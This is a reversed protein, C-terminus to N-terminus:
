DLEIIPGDFEHLIGEIVIKHTGPKPFSKGHPLITVIFFYKTKVSPNDRRYSAIIARKKSKSWFMVEFSKGVEAPKAKTYELADKVLDTLMDKDADREIARADSHNTFYADIGAHTIFKTSSKITALGREVLFEKFSLM